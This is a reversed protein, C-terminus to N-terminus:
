KIFVKKTTGDAKKIINIGKSPTTIKTGNISYRSEEEKTKSIVEIGLTSPDFSEPYFGKITMFKGWGSDMTYKEFSNEPVWLISNKYHNVYDDSRFTTTFENAMRHRSDNDAYNLIPPNNSLVYIHELTYTGSFAAQGITLM